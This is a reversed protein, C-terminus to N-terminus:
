DIDILISFAEAYMKGIRSGRLKALCEITEISRPLPDNMIESDYVKMIEIKKEFFPTIDVFMNPKFISDGCSPTFETESLCEYMLVKNIFPYRFNKTCSFSAQFVIQHDTHIDSRNPLYIIEPKVANFVKSVSTILTNMPITDLRMTPFDLKFIKTFGYLESVKAIEQQRRAVIAEDWGNKTDVNTVIMWYVEDRNKKHKLITGGCGLTEDDPHASIVLVKNM